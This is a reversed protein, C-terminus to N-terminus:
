KERKSKWSTFFIYKGSVSSYSLLLVPCELISFGLTHSSAIGSIPLLFLCLILICDIPWPLWDIPEDAASIQWWMLLHGWEWSFFHYTLSNNLVYHCVSLSLFGHMWTVEEGWRCDFFGGLSQNMTLVAQCGTHPLFFPFSLPLSFPPFPPEMQWSYCFNMPYNGVTTVIGGAVCVSSVGALYSLLWCM